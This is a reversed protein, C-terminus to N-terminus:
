GWDGSSVDWGVLSMGLGWDESSVDGSSADCAQHTRRSTMHTRASEDFWSKLKDDVWEVRTPFEPNLGLQDKDLDTDNVLEKWKEEAQLQNMYRKTYMELVDFWDVMRSKGGRRAVQRHTLMEEARCFDYPPREWGRKCKKVSCRERYDALIKRFIVVDQRAREFLDAKGQAAADKQCAAFEKKDDKCYPNNGSPPNVLCIVCMKLQGKEKGAGKM